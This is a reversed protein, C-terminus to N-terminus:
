NWEYNKIKDRRDFEILSQKQYNKGMFNIVNNEILCFEINYPNSLWM